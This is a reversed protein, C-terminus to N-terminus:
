DRSFLATGVGSGLAILEKRRIILMVISTAWVICAAVFLGGGDQNPDIGLPTFLHFSVAGSMVCLAILAGLAQLRRLAPIIGLLLCASALLEASGIVYQSFLGTQAFLGAAGLTSAWGDLLGFIVQTEPANTFKFRLSDLFVIAAFVAIAHPAFGIIKKM